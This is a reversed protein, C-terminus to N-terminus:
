ILQMHVIGEDRFAELGGCFPIHWTDSDRVLTKVISVPKTDTCLQFNINTSKCYSVEM